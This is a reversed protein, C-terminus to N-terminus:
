MVFFVLIGSLILLAILRKDGISEFSEPLLHFFVNGLLAGVALSVLIFVIGQLKGGKITLFIIGTISILSVFITSVLSNIWVSNM